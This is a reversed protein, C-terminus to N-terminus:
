LWGALEYTVPMCIHLSQNDSSCNQLSQTNQSGTPSRSTVGHSFSSPFPAGSGGRTCMERFHLPSTRFFALASTPMGTIEHMCRAQEVHDVKGQTSAPFLLTCDKREYKLLLLVHM